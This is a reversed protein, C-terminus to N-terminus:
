KNTYDSGIIISIDVNDPNEQSSKIVGVGLFEKIQTALENIKEESTFVVIETTTYNWNDANKTEVVKLVETDKNFHDEIIKKVTKALGTTGEGNLINIKVVQTPTEKGEEALPALSAEYNYDHGLIIVIDVGSQVEGTTINGVKLIGKIEEAIQMFSAETSGVIIETSTYNFHDANRVDVINFKSTGDDYKLGKFIESVKSAIGQTGMGNLIVLNVPQTLEAVEESPAGEGFIESIMSVDPVYFVEGELEVSTVNLVYVKSKEPRLESFTSIVKPLEEDVSLNTDIYERVLSLNSVLTDRDEGAIKGLLADIVVKQKKVGEASTGSELSGFYKLLSDASSGDILNQGSKLELVSGDENKITVGEDLYLDLGGLKDIANVIDVLMYHDIKIGLGSELTLDLLDMGGYSVSKDISELGFGPIEMLTKVPICLCVLEGRVSNYRSLLISNIAPELLNGSAGAIVISIDQNLELFEPIEIGKEETVVEKATERGKFYRNYVWVVGWAVLALIFLVLIASFIRRIKRRKQRIRRTRYGSPPYDGSSSDEFEFDEDSFFDDEVKYGEEEKNEDDHDRDRSSM